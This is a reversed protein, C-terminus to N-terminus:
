ALAKVNDVAEVEKRGDDDKVCRDKLTADDFLRLKRPPSVDGDDNFMDVSRGKL